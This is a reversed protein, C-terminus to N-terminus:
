LISLATPQTSDGAGNLVKPHGSALSIFASYQQYGVHVELFM